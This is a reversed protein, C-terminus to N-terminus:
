TADPQDGAAERLLTGMEARVAAEVAFGEPLRRRAEEELVEREGDSLKALAADLDFAAGESAAAVGSFLDRPHSPRVVLTVGCIAGGRRVTKYDFTLDTKEALEKKAPEIVRRKFDQFRPYKDELAFMRRLDELAFTRCRRYGEFTRLIEYFRMSYPSSLKMVQELRAQTFNARLQLLYPKMDQNFRAEVYGSGPEYRAMSMLNVGFYAGDAGVIEIKQDLLAAAAERAIKGRANTSVGSLDVLEAVSVKQFAFEERHMDLQAIMMYVVRQMNATWDYRALVFDNSKVVWRLSPESPTVSKPSADSM